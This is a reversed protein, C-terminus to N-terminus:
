RGPVRDTAPVPLEVARNLWTQVVEMGVGLYLDLAGTRSDTALEARPFGHERGARFADALLAQALGRRRHDRHVGVRAVDAYGDSGTVHVAGVVAGTDDTVVRLNWGAAGPREWVQAAFDGLSQRERDSWELFADELVRWVAERDAPGAERVTHGAPLSRAPVERGEPLRLVWSEWRVQWGLSALLRDGASGRPVPMGVRAAGGSAAVRQLWHALATGLGRGHHDPHVAADARDGGSWEAFGVLGGAAVVGVTSAALDFSPRRWEGVIDAEEIAVEGLDALENAAVLATVAAADEDVLPRATLGAPLGDLPEM